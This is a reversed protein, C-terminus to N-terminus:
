QTNVAQRVLLKGRLFVSHIESLAAIDQTPDGKVLLLDARNGPKLIGFDPATSESLYQAPYFTAARLAEAPTLGAAVLTHLERHLSAGPFVGSQVDSGALIRMGAEHLRAVNDRRVDITESMLELWSELPGLDFDAPPPYFAQLLNAPIIQQELSTAQIPGLLTRGYRDFVESTTVMPIQYAVLQEIFEDPIREKYVGHVWLSAGAEAAAIADATTGIHAVTRIGHQKAQEVVAKALVDDLHPAAIPIEDVIIKIADAGAAARQDVEARAEEPTAIGTGVKDVIYWRIWWPALKQAVSRPHGEPHTIIRGTTYITPGLLEGNNVQAKRQYAEDTSDSPDFITTIGAYLYGLMNAEIDPLSFEWSPGITTTIHGHMDVLGPLLTHGQGAIIHVDAPATVSGSPGMATILGANILVDQAPEVQLSDSHFVAVNKFLIATQTDDRLSVQVREYQPSCATVLSLLLSLVIITKSKIAFM